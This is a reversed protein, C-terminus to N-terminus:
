FASTGLLIVTNPMREAILDPVPRQPAIINRVGFQLTLMNRMYKFLHEVWEDVGADDGPIGWQELLRKELVEPHKSTSAGLVLKAPSVGLLFVQLRFLLFNFVVVAVILILSNVTRRNVYTRLSM